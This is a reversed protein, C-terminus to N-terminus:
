VEDFQKEFERLKVIRSNRITEFEEGNCIISTMKGQYCPQHISIEVNGWSLVKEIEEVQRTLANIEDMIKEAKEYQEKEM